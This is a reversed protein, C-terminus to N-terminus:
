TLRVSASRGGWWVVAALAYAVPACFMAAAMSSTRDSIWGILLPSWLDGLLHCAFICAAMASARLENPVSRLLAVTFPGSLLFLAVECPFLAAVFGRETSALIAAVALPAGLGTSLVCVDLNARAIAFDTEGPDLPAGKRRTASRERARAAADGMWGGLLTGLFGAIVTVLGFTQSAKGTELGYRRVTYVVAWAAFGGIAFTYACFGLVARVFLSQRGLTQVSEVIHPLASAHQRPPEALLLCLLALVLGPVGGVLFVDRWNGTVELVKGGLLYGMASGIPTAASFIAMWRGKRAPPAIDDILAPAITAYSAEGVGVVARTSVMAAASGVLGSTITAVSWVGIGLALLARRGGPGARDALYGFLPSTVFYGILFVTFLSGSVVGSLHLDDQVKPLVAALIFRDLYNLLNLTTLLALVLSPRRIVPAVM